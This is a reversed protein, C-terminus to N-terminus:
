QLWSIERLKRQMEQKGLCRTTIRTGTLRSSTSKIECRVAQPDDLADAVLIALKLQYRAQPYIPVGLEQLSWKELSLRRWGDETTDTSLYPRIYAPLQQAAWSHVEVNVRSTHPSYLSWSLWHDWWGSRETLPLCLALSLVGTVFIRSANGTAFAPKAPQSLTSEASRTTSGGTSRVFLFWAQVLLLANWLLVGYSHGLSWPGLALILGAHMLMAGVGACRRTREFPLGLGVILEAAPLTAALMLRGTTPEAEGPGLLLSVFQQGVTHLFQFDFKALASFFYIAATLWRLWTCTSRGDFTTFILGYLCAQYAWPQLRHQDLLFLLMLGLTISGWIWRSPLKSLVIRLLALMTLLWIVRSSWPSSICTGIFGSETAFSSVLPVAPFTAPTWWLRASVAFLGLLAAAVGRQLSVLSSLDLGILPKVSCPIENAVTTANKPVFEPM